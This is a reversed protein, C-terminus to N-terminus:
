KRLMFHLGKDMKGLMGRSEDIRCDLIDFGAARLLEALAQETYYAYFRGVADREESDGLKLGIYCTGGARLATYIRQLNGPMESKPAHLLSYSAWIGDFADRADLDTFNRQLVTLGHLQQAADIMDPSADMCTIVFGRDRMVASAHGVGCGLDLTDAEDALLALFRDLHPNEPTDEVLAKYADINQAYAQMTQTDAM